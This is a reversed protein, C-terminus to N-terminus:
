TRIDPMTHVNACGECVPTNTEKHWYRTQVGCFDCREMLKDLGLGWKKLEEIDSVTEPEVQIAM